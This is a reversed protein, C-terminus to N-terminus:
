ACPSPMSWRRPPASLSSPVWRNRSDLRLAASRRWSRTWPGAEPGCRSMPWLVRLRAASVQCGFSHMALLPNTRCRRRPRSPALPPPPDCRRPQRGVPRPQRWAPAASRQPRKAHVSWQPSICGGSSARLRGVGLLGQLLLGPGVIFRVTLVLLYTLLRLGLAGGDGFQENM